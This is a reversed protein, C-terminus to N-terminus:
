SGSVTDVPPMVPTHLPEPMDALVYAMIAMTAIGDALASPDVKDLTDAATHHIDFYTRDDTMFGLGAVGRDVLLEIDSGSHNTDKITAANLPTLLSAIDVLRARVRSRAAEDIVHLEFGRPAFGGM